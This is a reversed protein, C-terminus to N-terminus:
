ACVIAEARDIDLANAAASWARWGQDLFGHTASGDEGVPLRPARESFGGLGEGLQSVALTVEATQRHERWVSERTPTSLVEQHLAQSRAFLADAVQRAEDWASELPPHWAREVASRAPSFSQTAASLRYSAFEDFVRLVPLAENVIARSEAEWRNLDELDRPPVAPLARPEQRVCAAGLGAGAALLFLRRSLRASM